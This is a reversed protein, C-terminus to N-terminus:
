LVGDPQHVCTGNYARIRNLYLQVVRTSTVDGRMIASQITEVTAEEIRFPATQASALSPALFIFTAASALKRLM